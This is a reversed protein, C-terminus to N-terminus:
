LPRSALLWHKAEETAVVKSFVTNMLKLSAEHMDQKYGGVIETPVRVDFDRFYADRVTSEVCFDSRVGGIVLRDIGAARLREELDTKFFGSFRTKEVTWDEPKSTLGELLEAGWTGRRLGREALFASRYAILGLDSKKNWTMRVWIV